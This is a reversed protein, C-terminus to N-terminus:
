MTTQSATGCFRAVSGNCDKCRASVMEQEHGDAGINRGTKERVESGRKATVAKHCHLCYFENWSLKVRKAERKALLFAKLDAGMVLKPTKAPDLLELGEKIWRLVTKRNIGLMQGIEQPTYATRARINSLAHNKM